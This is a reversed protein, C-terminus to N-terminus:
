DSSVPVGACLPAACGANRVAGSLEQSGGLVYAGSHDLLQTEFVLDSFHEQLSADVFSDKALQLASLDLQAAVDPPLYTRLFTEAADPQTLLQKFFKDHPNVVDAM